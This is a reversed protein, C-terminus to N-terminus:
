HTESFKLKKQKQSKAHFAQLSTQDLALLVDLVFVYRSKSKKECM